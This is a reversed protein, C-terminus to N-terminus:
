LATQGAVQKLSSCSQAIEVEDDLVAEIDAETTLPNAIVARLVVVPTEAGYRTNHLVTRSIFTRGAERQARQLRINFENIAHNDAATLQRERLHERYPPPIYRYTIINTEPEAVLEFETRARLADAMYRTKRIGEDILFEYGKRGIINLAAHLLLAMGPRSGEVARRGLDASGARVIYRANREISKAKQPNRFMLMGTGMPLYLQKHGDFTVTDALKIGSLKHRHTESFLLPGGWAADVHFHVGAERAIEGMERLPDIGGSETTGAIGVIAIMREHRSQCEAVTRRLAPLDIQQRRTTQIRLLNQTGIGLLDAAKDISYHMLNSGIIVARGHGDREAARSLGERGVVQGDAVAALAANRACWLATINAVTGGSTMIGLTSENHQAHQEYFNNPCDYILRHISALVSREFPSLAKATELKVVNQNLSAILKFLPRVFYPLASTMHGLFRTSSTRTSHAVVNDAVFAIYDEVEVCEDPLQGSGFNAALAELAIDSNANTARLFERAMEDILDEANRERDSKAGPDDFLQMIRENLSQRSVEAVPEASFRRRGPKM